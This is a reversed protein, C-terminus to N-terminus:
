RRNVPTIEFSCIEPRCAHGAFEAVRGSDDYGTRRM